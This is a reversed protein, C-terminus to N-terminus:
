SADIAARPRSMQSPLSGVKVSRWESSASHTVPASPASFRRRAPRRSARRAPSCGPQATNRVRPRRYGPSSSGRQLRPMSREDLRDRRRPRMGPGAGRRPGPPPPGRPAGPSARRPARAAFAERVARERGLGVPAHHERGRRVGRQGPRVVLAEMSGRNADRRNPGAAGPSLRARSPGEQQDHGADRLAPIATGLTSSGAIRRRQGTGRPERWCRRLRGHIRSQRREDQGSEWRRHVLGHGVRGDRRIRRDDLDVHSGM